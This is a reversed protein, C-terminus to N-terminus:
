ALTIHEVAGDKYYEDSIVIPYVDDSDITADAVGLSLGVGFGAMLVHFRGNSSSNGHKDCLTVPITTGSSNGYRDLSVPVKDLPVKIKRAIHKMVFYNAQHLLLCDFEAATIGYKKFYEEFLNPVDSLTFQFVDAGNMVLEYDSRTNGDGWLVREHSATRNRYGGAPLIIAKFREGDSELGFRMVHNSDDCKEVLTASGADGFLMRSKDYPSAAKSTTDGILLLARKASSCQLLSCVTQLGYVYGSCGLNIDYAICDKSLGLRKQIVSATSPSVYDHYVIVCILIGISSPNINKKDMLEKAAIYCLDGATQKDSCIYGGKIGTTAIIKEVTEKGFLDAYEMNDVHHSPVAAAIGAIKMNDFQSAIM